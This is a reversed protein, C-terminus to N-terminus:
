RIGSPCVARVFVHQNEEYFHRSTDLHLIWDHDCGLLYINKFGMYLAVELAMITVSQPSPV